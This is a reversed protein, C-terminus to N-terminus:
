HWYILYNVMGGLSMIALLLPLAASCPNFTAEHVMPAHKHWHKFYLRVYAAINNATILETADLVEEPPHNPVNLVAVAYKLKARIDFARRELIDWDLFVNGQGSWLMLNDGQIPWNHTQQEFTEFELHSLFVDLNNQGQPMHGFGDYDPMAGLLDGVYPEFGNNMSGLNSFDTTPKSNPSSTTDKPFEQM